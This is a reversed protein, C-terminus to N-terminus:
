KMLQKIDIIYKNKINDVINNYDLTNEEELKEFDKERWNKTTMAPTGIRVGSSKMPPLVDNPIQNKNLTINIEDLITEVQKGTLGITDYTNLVFMHNQTGNSIVKWGLDIFKNAFAQANLVVQKAYQKFEDSKAEEFCIGKACIVHELPGGKYRKYGRKRSIKFPM